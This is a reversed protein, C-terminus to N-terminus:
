ERTPQQNRWYMSRKTPSVLSNMRGLTHSLNYIKMYVLRKKPKTPRMGGKRM